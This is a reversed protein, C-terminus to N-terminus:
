ARQGQREINCLVALLGAPAPLPIKSRAKSRHQLHFIVVQFAQATGDHRGAVIWLEVLVEAACRCTAACNNGMSQEVLFSSFFITDSSSAGPASDTAVLFFEVIQMQPNTYM